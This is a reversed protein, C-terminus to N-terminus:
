IRHPWGIVVTFMSKGNSSSYVSYVSHVSHVSHAEGCIHRTTRVGEDVVLTNPEGLLFSYIYISTNCVSLTAPCGSGRIHPVRDVRDVRDPIPAAVGICCYSREYRTCAVIPVILAMSPVLAMPGIWM